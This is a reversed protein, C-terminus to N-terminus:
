GTLGKKLELNEVIIEAIVTKMRENEQKLKEEKISPKNNQRQFVADASGLLQNKWQYYQTTSIGKSRCIVSVGSEDKLGELAIELKDKPSWKRHM